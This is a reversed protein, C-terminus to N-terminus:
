FSIKAFAEGAVFFEIRDIHFVVKYDKFPSRYPYEQFDRFVLSVQKFNIIQNEFDKKLDEKHQLEAIKLLYMLVFLKAKSEPFEELLANFTEAAEEYSTSSFYYEGVAFLSSEKFKSKPFNRILSRFRMFAFDKSGERAAKMALSYTQADEQAIVPETLTLGFLLIILITKYTM